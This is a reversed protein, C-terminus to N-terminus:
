IGCGGSDDGDIGGVDDYDDCGCFSKTGHECRMRNDPVQLKETNGVQEVTRGMGDLRIYNGEM